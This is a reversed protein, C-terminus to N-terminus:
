PRRYQCPNEEIEGGRRVRYLRALDAAAATPVYTLKAIYLHHTIPPPFQSPNRLFGFPYVNTSLFIYYINLKLLCM